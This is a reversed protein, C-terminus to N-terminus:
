SQDKARRPKGPPSSISSEPAQSNPDDTHDFASLIPSRKTMSPPAYERVARAFVNATRRRASRKLNRNSASLSRIERRILSVYVATCLAVFAEHGTTKPSRVLRLMKHLEGKKSKTPPSARLTKLVLHNEFDLIVKSHAFANRIGRIRNLWDKTREDFLGMAYGCAIKSSLTALPGSEDTLANWTAEDRKKFQKRLLVDLQLEVLSQGLIASVIPPGAEIATLVADFEEDTPTERSLDRIKPKSKSSM